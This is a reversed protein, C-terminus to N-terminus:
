STQCQHVVHPGGDDSLSAGDAFGGEHGRTHEYEMMHVEEVEAGVESETPIHVAPKAPLYKLLKKLQAPGIDKSEPFAVDFSVILKGREEGYKAHPMGENLVCRLSESTLPDGPPHILMLIRGDLHQVPIKFGCLSETLNIDLKLILDLDRRMFREHKEQQLVILVDGAEFGPGCDGEGRFTIREGHSMGPRIVVELTRNDEVVKQGRCKKCRESDKISEGAGNCEPCKGHIQQIVGVGMKAVQIFTGTGRCKPCQIACGPPGGRGSCMQCVIRRQIETEKTKGNYLDELTVSLPFAIDKAKRRQQGGMHHHMGAFMGGFPGGLIGGGGGFLKSFIDEFGSFGGSAAGEKLGELGHMDYIRKKEDNSLVDYAFSIEKFKEGHEPNKDPHYRKALHYYSKKIESMSSHPSVNLIDYLTRDVPM